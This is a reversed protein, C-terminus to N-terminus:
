IWQVRRRANQCWHVPLLRGPLRAVKVTSVLRDVLEASVARGQVSLCGASHQKQFLVFGVWVFIGRAITGAVSSTGSVWAPQQSCLFTMKEIHFLSCPESPALSGSGLGGGWVILAKHPPSARLGENGNRSIKWPHIRPHLSCVEGWGPLASGNSVALWRESTSFYQVLFLLFFSFFFICSM